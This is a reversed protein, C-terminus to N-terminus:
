QEISSNVCISSNTFINLINGTKNVIDSHNCDVDNAEAVFKKKKEDKKKRISIKGIEMDSDQIGIYKLDFFDKYWYSHWNCGWGEFDGVRCGWQCFSAEDRRM